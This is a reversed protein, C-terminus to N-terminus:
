LYQFGLQVADHYSRTCKLNDRGLHNTSVCVVAWGRDTDGGVSIAAVIQFAGM